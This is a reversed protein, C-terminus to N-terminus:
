WNWSNISNFSHITIIENSNKLEAYEVFRLAMMKILSVTVITPTLLCMRVNLQIIGSLHNWVNKGLNKINDPHIYSFIVYQNEPM